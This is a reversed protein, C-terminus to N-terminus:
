PPFPKDMASPEWFGAPGADGRAKWREPLPLALTYLLNFRLSDDLQGAPPVAVPPDALADVVSKAWRPDVHVAALMITGAVEPHVQVAGLASAYAAPPELLARAIDRDYRALLEALEIDARQAQDNLSNRGPRPLRLSLSRWFLESCLDPDVREAVPLLWASIAPASDWPMSWNEEVPLQPLEERVLAALLRRAEAPQTEALALIIAGKARVIIAGNARFREEVAEQSDVAAQEALARDVKALRYCLEAAAAGESSTRGGELVRKWAEAARRPHDPLLGAAVRGGNRRLYAGSKALWDLARDADDHVAALALHFFAYQAAADAFLPKADNEAEALVQRGRAVEGVGFSREAVSALVVVRLTRDATKRAHPVAADLWELRMAQEDGDM